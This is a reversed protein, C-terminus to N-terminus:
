FTCTKRQYERIKDEPHKRHWATRKWERYCTVCYRKKGDSQIGLNDGALPHGKKCHTKRANIAGQGNGRLINVINTVPEMHWPNVCSRNRCLHDPELGPPILGICYEYAWRHARVQKGGARFFGYAEEDKAATWEWCGNTQIQVKEWFRDEENRKMILITGLM